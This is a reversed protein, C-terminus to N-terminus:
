PGGPMPSLNLLRLRRKKGIKYTRPRGIKRIIWGLAFATAPVIAAAWTLQGGVLLDALSFFAWGIGFVYLSNGFNNLWRRKNGSKLASISEVKVARNGFVVIGEEVLIDQMVDEYWYSRDGNLQFQLSEGIYYKITKAKGYKEIQLVKQGTLSFSIAIFSLILIPLRM